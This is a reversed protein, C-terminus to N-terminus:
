GAFVRRLEALSTLGTRAKELAVELLSGGGAQRALQAIVAADAGRRIASVVPRGLPMPSVVVAQGSYGLEGCRSCGGPAFVPAPAQEPALGLAKVEEEAPEVQQKCNGCLLRFTEHEIVGALVSSLPWPELGMELLTAVAGPATRSHMGALVVSGGLAVELAALATSPNRLEAIMVAEPRQRAAARVAEPFSLGAPQNVRCHTVWDLEADADAEIALCNSQPGALSALMARLMEDKGCRPPGALVVLGGRNALAARLRAEEQESLGLESLGRVQRDLIRIFIKEGHLTPCTAIALEVQQGDVQTTFDGAQPRDCQGIDLGALAKLYAALKPAIGEPLRERFSAREHLVGDVRIRLALGDRRPDLHIEAANRSIGHRLTAEAVQAAPDAAEVEPAAPPEAAEAAEAQEPALEAVAPEAPPQADEEVLEAQYAAGNAPPTEPREPRPPGAEASGPQSSEKAAAKTMIEQIDIGQRQLFQILGDESVRVPGDPLREFPLWGKEMWEVVTGPTAGLLDAVQYTSFFRDPM